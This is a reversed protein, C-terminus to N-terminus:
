QLELVAAMKPIKSRLATESCAARRKDCQHEYLLVRGDQIQRIRRLFRQALLM